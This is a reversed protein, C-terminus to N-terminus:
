GFALEEVSEDISDSHKQKPRRDWARAGAIASISQLGALETIKTRLGWEYPERCRAEVSIYCDLAAMKRPLLRRPGSKKKTSLM